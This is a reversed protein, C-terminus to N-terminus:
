LSPLFFVISFEQIFWSFVINKESASLIEQGRKETTIYLYPKFFM